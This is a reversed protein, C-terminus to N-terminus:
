RSDIKSKRKYLNRNEDKDNDELGKKQNILFREILMCQEAFLKNWEEEFKIILKCAREVRKQYKNKTM